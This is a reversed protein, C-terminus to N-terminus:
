SALGNMRAVIKAAQERTLFDNPGFTTASYGNIIGRGYATEIYRIQEPDRVDTFRSTACNSIM